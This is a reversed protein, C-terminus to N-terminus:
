PRRIGALSGPKIKQTAEYITKTNELKLKQAM